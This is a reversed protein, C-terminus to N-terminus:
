LGLGKRKRKKKKELLQDQVRKRTELIQGLGPVPFWFFRCFEGLVEFVFGL